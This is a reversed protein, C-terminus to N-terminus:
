RTEVTSKVTEVSEVNFTLTNPYPNSYLIQIRILIRILIRIIASLKSDITRLRRCM